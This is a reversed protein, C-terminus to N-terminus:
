CPTNPDDTSIVLPEAEVVMGRRLGALIEDTTGGHARTQLAEAVQALRLAFAIQEAPSLSDSILGLGFKGSEDNIQQLAFLIASEAPGSVAEV